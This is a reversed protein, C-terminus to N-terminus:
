QGVSSSPHVASRHRVIGAPVRDADQSPAAEASHVLDVAVEESLDFLRRQLDDLDRLAFPVNLFQVAAAVVPLADPRDVALIQGVDHAFIRQHRLHLPMRVNDVAVIDLIDRVLVFEAPCDIDAHLQQGRQELGQRLVLRLPLRDPEAAIQRVRQRKAAAAIDDM